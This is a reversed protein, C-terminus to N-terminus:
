KYGTGLIFRRRGCASQALGGLGFNIEIGLSARFPRSETYNDFTKYYAPYGEKEGIDSVFDQLAYEFRLNIKVTFIDSGALFGGFGAAASFYETEYLDDVRFRDMGESQEVSRVSTYKPGLEFFAGGESYFRYMLFVDIAKWEIGIRTQDGMDLFDYNQQNTISIAELNIGHYDGFNLGLIGGASFATNLEFNHQPDDVLNKNFFGTLGFGAKGGLELWVQGSTIESFMLFVILVITIKRM